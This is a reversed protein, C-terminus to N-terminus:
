GRGGGGSGGLVRKIGRRKMRRTDINKNKTNANELRCRAKARSEGEGEGQEEEEYYQIVTCLIANHQLM